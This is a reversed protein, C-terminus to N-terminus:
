FIYSITSINHVAIDNALIPQDKKKKKKKKQQGNNSTSEHTCNLAM